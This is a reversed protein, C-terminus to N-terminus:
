LDKERLAYRDPIKQGALFLAFWEAAEVGTLVEGKQVHVVGGSMKVSTAQDSADAHGVVFHKYENPSDSVRFEVTCATKSGGCQMYNGNEHELIYFSNKKADLKNLLEGFNLDLPLPIEGRAECSLRWEPVPWWIDGDNDSVDFFGVRHKAALEKVYRYASEAESWAFSVYIVSRGLSYDTLKPNDVEESALPGNMPPFTEIIEQFWTKLAQSPVDPNNYEHSEGCEIQEQYWALFRERNRPAVKSDFVM